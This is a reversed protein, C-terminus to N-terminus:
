EKKTEPFAFSFVELPQPQYDMVGAFKSRVEDIIKPVDTPKEPLQKLVLPVAFKTAFLPHKILGEHHINLWLDLDYTIFTGYARVIEPTVMDPLYSRITVEDAMTTMVLQHTLLEKLNDSLTYPYSNVTIHIPNDEEMQSFLGILEATQKRLETVVSTMVSNFLVETNRNNWRELYADKDIREDYEWFEDNLRTRYWDSNIFEAILDPYLESLIAIRTDFLCDIDVFTHPNAM